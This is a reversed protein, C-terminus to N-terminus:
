SAKQIPTLTTLIEHLRHELKKVIEKTKDTEKTCDSFYAHWDIMQQITIENM